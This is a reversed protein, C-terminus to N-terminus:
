VGSEDGISIEQSQNAALNDSAFSAPIIILIFIALALLMAKKKLKRKSSMFIM